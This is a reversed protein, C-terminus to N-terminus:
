DSLSERPGYHILQLVEAVSAAPINSSLGACFYNRYLVFRPNIVQEIRRWKPDRESMWVGDRRGTAYTKSQREDCRMGEYSINVAGGGAKVVLTYRVVGDAGISLAKEDIFYRNSSAANVEFQVLDGDRPFAPLTTELEKFQEKPRDNQYDWGSWQAAAPFALFAVWALASARM